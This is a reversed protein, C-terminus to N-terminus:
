FKTLYSFFYYSLITKHSDLKISKHFTIITLLLLIWKIFDNYIYFLVLSNLSIAQLFIIIPEMFDIVIYVDIKLFICNIHLIWLFPLSSMKAM